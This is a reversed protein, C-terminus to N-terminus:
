YMLRRQKAYQSMGGVLSTGANIFGSMKAAKGEARFQAAQNM